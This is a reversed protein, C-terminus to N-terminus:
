KLYHRGLASSRMKAHEYCYARKDNLVFGADLPCGDNECKLHAAEPLGRPADPLDHKRLYENLEALQAAIERLYFRSHLAPGERIVDARM